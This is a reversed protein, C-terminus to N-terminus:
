LGVEGIAVIKREEKGLSRLEAIVEDTVTEAHHPHVGLTAYVQPYRKALEVSRRTGEVSSGINVIKEVGAKFARDLVVDRDEDFEHFDLHCHTDIMM